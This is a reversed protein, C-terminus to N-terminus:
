LSHRLCLRLGIDGRDFPGSNGRNASRCCRARFNWSGGRYVHKKGSTAGTPDAVDTTPYTGHWDLCWEWVNGHMDYLGWANPAFSGVPTTKGRFGERAWGTDSASADINAKKDDITSGFNFATLSGARCAYEWQAETPLGYEYGDPLRGAARERDNLRRCFEMADEWSVNEVPAKPGLDKFRSPNNGMVSEWQLQTVEYKAMWFGHTLTVKHQTEDGFRGAESASSGVKVDGPVLWQMLIDYDPITWASGAEPGSYAQLSRELALTAGGVLSGDISVSKFGKKSLTYAYHGPAVDAVFPTQGIVKGDADQVEAGAPTTIIDLHGPIFEGHITVSKDKEVYVPKRQAPWNERSYEIVYEGVPIKELTTPTTGRNQASIYEAPAKVIRWDTHEPNGSIVLTGKIIKAPASAHSSASVDATVTEAQADDSKNHDSFTVWGGYITAIGGLAGAGAKSLNVISKINM